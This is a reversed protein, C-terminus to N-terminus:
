PANGNAASGRNAKPKVRVIDSKRMIYRLYLQELWAADYENMRETAHINLRKVFNHEVSDMGRALGMLEARKKLQTPSM